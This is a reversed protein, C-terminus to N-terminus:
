DESRQIQTRHGLGIFGNQVGWKIEGLSPSKVGAISGCNTEGDVVASEELHPEGSVRAVEGDQEVSHM